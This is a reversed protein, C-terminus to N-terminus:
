IVRLIFEIAKLILIIEIFFFVNNVRVNDIVNRTQALTNYSMHENSKKHCSLDM